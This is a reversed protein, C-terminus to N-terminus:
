RKKLREYRNFIDNMIEVGKANHSALFLAYLPGNKSNRMIVPSSVHPFLQKMQDLYINALGIASIADREPLQGQLSFTQIRTKWRKKPTRM